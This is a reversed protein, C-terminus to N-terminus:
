SVMGTSHANQDERRIRPPLWGEWRTEDPFKTFEGESEWADIVQRVAAEWATKIPQPLVDFEPMPEGRFNKNGASASYAKYASIAFAEYSNGRAKM